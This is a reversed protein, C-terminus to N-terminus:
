NSQTILITPIEGVVLLIHQPIPESLPKLGAGGSGAEVGDEVKYDFEGVSVTVFTDQLPHV